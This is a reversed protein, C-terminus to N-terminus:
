AGALRRPCILLLSARSPGFRVEVVQVSVQETPQVSGRVFIPLGMQLTATRDRLRAKFAGAAINVIECFADAAESEPLPGEDPGLGLLCMALVQCGADDSALGIQVSGDPGTLGLLALHAPVPAGHRHVVEMGPLGLAPAAIDEFAGELDGLWSEPGAAPDSM